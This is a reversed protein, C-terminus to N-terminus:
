AMQEAHFMKNWLALAEEEQRRMEAADSDTKDGQGLLHLVGHIIVRHLEHEFPVGFKEANEGVRDTSIMIDGSILGGAVYDFTIIDTYTDHNLYARNVEILYADDCFIYNVEGVRKGHTRVIRSIWNQVRESEPLTFNVNEDSFFIAM